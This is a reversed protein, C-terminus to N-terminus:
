RQVPCQSSHEFNIDVGKSTSFANSEYEPSNILVVPSLLGHIMIFSSINDPIINPISM